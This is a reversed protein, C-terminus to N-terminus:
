FKANLLFIADSCVYIFVKTRIPIAARLHPSYQQSHAANIYILTTNAATGIDCESLPNMAFYPFSPIFNLSKPPTVFFFVVSCQWRIQLPRVINWISGFQMRFQWADPVRFVTRVAMEDPMEIRNFQVTFNISHFSCRPGAMAFLCFSYLLVLYFLKIQLQLPVLVFVVRRCM